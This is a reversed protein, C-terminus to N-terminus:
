TLNLEHYRERVSNSVSATEDLILDVFSYLPELCVPYNLNFVYFCKYTLDLAKEISPVHLASYEVIVFVAQAEKQRHLLLIYPQSPLELRGSKKDDLYSEMNLGVQSCICMTYFFTVAPVIYVHVM